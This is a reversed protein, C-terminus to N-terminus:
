RRTAELLGMAEGRWHGVSTVAVQDLPGEYPQEVGSSDLPLFLKERGLVLTAIAVNMVFQPEMGHGIGTGTARVPLDALAKLWAREESTAPETGTAGSIIAIRSVAPPHPALDTWMRSLTHTIAGPLRSSRQSKVEVLRAKPNASRREAHGREELILFAGISALVMGPSNAREWVAKFPPHL